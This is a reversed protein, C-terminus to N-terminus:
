APIDQLIEAEELLGKRELRSEGESFRGIKEARRRAQDESYGEAKRLREGAMAIHACARPNREQELYPLVKLRLKNRTYTDELNTRDTRYCIQQERLWAEIEERTCGLLPRIVYGNVPQIGSMGRVGSGPDRLGM